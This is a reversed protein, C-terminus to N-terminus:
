HRDKINQHNKNSKNTFLEDIKEDWAIISQLYDGWWQMLKAKAKLNLAHNYSAKVKNLESHALCQEIIDSSIKHKFRYEHALTSFMARFGHPTFEDGTYGLSKFMMRMTNEGLIGDYSNPSSFLYKKSAFTKYRKLIDILQSNLSINHNKRAKMKFAPIHWIQNKLDLESWKCTRINFARQVSLMCMLTAVKVELSGKYSFISLLLKKISNKDLLTAYHKTHRKIILDKRSLNNMPNNAILGKMMAFRFIENLISFFKSASEKIGKKRFLEFSKLLDLTSIKDIEYNGYFVFAFRKLLSLLSQYTKDTVQKQKTQMKELALTQFTTKSIDKLLTKKLINRQNRAFKLNILPHKGLSKRKYKLTKTCKYNYFFTKTGSPYICLLLNDKDAVYYKVDKPKLGRIKRENLM